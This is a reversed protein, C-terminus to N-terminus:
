RSLLRPSGTSRSCRGRASASRSTPTRSAGSSRRTSRSPATAPSAGPRCTSGKSTRTASASSRCRTPSTPLTRSRGGTARSRKCGARRASRPLPAAAPLRGAAQMVTTLVFGILGMDHYLPLWSVMTDRRSVQMGQGLVHINSVLNRHTLQVGKPHGTSGSTYQLFALDEPGVEPFRADSTGAQEDRLVADGVLRDAAVMHLLGQSQGAIGHLVGLHAQPPCAGRRRRASPSTRSGALRPNWASSRRRHTAPCRSAAQGSYPSSCSSPFRVVDSPRAARAGRARAGAGHAGPGDRAGGPLSTRLDPARGEGERQGVPPHRRGRRRARGRETAGGAPDSRFLMLDDETAPLAVTWAASRFDDATVDPYSDRHRQSDLTM